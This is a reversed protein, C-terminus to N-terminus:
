SGLDLRLIVSSTGQSGIVYLHTGSVAAGNVWGLGLGTFITAREGVLRVIEGGPTWFVVSGDPQGRGRLAEHRLPRLLGALRSWGGGAPRHFLVQERSGAARGVLYSGKASGLALAWTTSDANPVRLTSWRGNERSLVDLVGAAHVTRADGGVSWLYSRYVDRAAGGGAYQVLPNPELSWQRGDYRLIVAYDGVAYVEDPGPGWLDLLNIHDIFHGDAFVSDRVPSPMSEVQHGPRWRRIEPGSQTLFFVEDEAPAHLVIPIEGLEALAHLRPERGDELRYLTTGISLYLRGQPSATITSNASGDVRHLVQVGPDEVVHPNEGRCGAFPLAALLFLCGIRHVAPRARRM